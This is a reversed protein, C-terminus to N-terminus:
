ITESHSLVSRLGFDDSILCKKKPRIRTKYRYRPLPIKWGTATKNKELGTNPDLCTKREWVSSAGYFFHHVEITARTVGPIVWQTRNPLVPHVGIAARTSPVIIAYIQQNNQRFMGVYCCQFGVNFM